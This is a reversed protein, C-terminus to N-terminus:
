AIKKETPKSRTFVFNRQFWLVTRTRGKYPHKCYFIETPFQIKIHGKSLHNLQIAVQLAINYFFYFQYGDSRRHMGSCSEFEYIFKDILDTIQKENSQETKNNNYDRIL